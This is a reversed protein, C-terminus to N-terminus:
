NNGSLAAFRMELEERLSLNKPLPQAKGKPSFAAEKAKEADKCKAELAEQTRQELLKARTQNNFWVAAEYADLLNDVVGKALLVSMEKIVEGFFPHQRNGKEDLAEGFQRVEESVVKSALADNLSAGKGQSMGVSQAKPCFDTHYVEALFRMAENPVTSLMDEIRAMARLWEQASHIGYQQLESSKAAYIDDFWRYAGLHDHLAGFGKEIEQERVKLYRRWDEPLNKFTEAFEKQYARPAQLTEDEAAKAVEEAKKEIQEDKAKRKAAKKEASLKAFHELEERIESMEM